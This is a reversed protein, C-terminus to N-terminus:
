KPTRMDSSAIVTTRGQLFDSRHLIHVATQAEAFSAYVSVVCCEAM